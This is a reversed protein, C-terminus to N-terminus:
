TQWMAAQDVMQAVVAEEEKISLLQNSFHPFIAKVQSM